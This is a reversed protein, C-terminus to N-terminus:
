LGKGTISGKYKDLLEIFKNKANSNKSFYGINVIHGHTQNRTTFMFIEGEAFANVYTKSRGSNYDALWSDLEKESYGKPLWKKYKKDLQITINQYNTQDSDNLFKTRFVDGTIVSTLRDNQDFFLLLNPKYSLIQYCADSVRLFKYPLTFSMIIQLDANYPLMAEVVENSAAKCTNQTESDKGKMGFKFDEYGDIIGSFSTLYKKEEEARQKELEEQKKREEAIRKEDEIKKRELEAALRIKEEEEFEAVEKELEVINNQNNSVFNKLDNDLNSPIIIKTIEEKTKSSNIKEKINSINKSFDILIRESETNDKKLQVLLFNIKSATEVNKVNTKEIEEINQLLPKKLDALEKENKEQELKKQKEKELEKKRAIETNRKQEAKQKNEYTFNVVVEIKNQNNTDDIIMLRKKDKYIKWIFKKDGEFVRISYGVKRSRWGEESLLEKDELIKKYNNDSFIYTVKKGLKQDQFSIENELLLKVSDDIPLTESLEDIGSKIDKLIKIKDHSFALVNSYLFFVLLLSINLINNIKM